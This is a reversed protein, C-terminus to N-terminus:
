QSREILDFKYYKKEVRMGLSRIYRNKNASHPNALMRELEKKLISTAFAKFEQNDKRSRLNLGIVEGNKTILLYTDEIQCWTDIPLEGWNIFLMQAQKNLSAILNSNSAM